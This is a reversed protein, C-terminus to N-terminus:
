GPAHFACFYKRANITGDLRFERAARPRLPRFCWRPPPDDCCSPMPVMPYSRYFGVVDGGREDLRRRAFKGEFVTCADRDDAAARGSGEEGVEQLSEGLGGSELEIDVNVFRPQERM